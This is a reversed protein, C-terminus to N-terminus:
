RARDLQSAISLAHEPWGKPFPWRRARCWQHIQLPEAAVVFYARDAGICEALEELACEVHPRIEHRQANIFRTSIGAIVHEFAARRQLAIARARLQLGFYVLAGLLVLSAVYLFLRYQARIGTGCAAAERGIRSRDDQEPNGTRRGVRKLVADTKPLLDHLLGGHASFVTM